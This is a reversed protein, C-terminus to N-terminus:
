AGDDAAHGARDAVFDVLEHGLRQAVVQDTKREIQGREIDRTTAVGANRGEIRRPTFEVLHGAVGLELRVRAPGVQHLVELMRFRQDVEDGGIARMLASVAASTSVIASIRATAVASTRPPLAVMLAPPTPPGLPDERGIGASRRSKRLLVPM